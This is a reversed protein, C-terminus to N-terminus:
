PSQSGPAREMILYVGTDEIISFGLRQYLRVARNFIEVKLRVAKGAEEGEKLLEEILSAGIGNGRYEPLLAIDALLIESESRAVLIRGIPNDEHLIIHHDADSFRSNYQQQRATFQMNLFLKQQATDWGWAAMEESRASAYLEYLFSEDDPGAPRFSIEM